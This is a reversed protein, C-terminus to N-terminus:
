QDVFAAQRSLLRDLSSRLDATRIWRIDIRRRGLAWELLSHFPKQERNWAHLSSREQDRCPSGIRQGGGKLPDAGIIRGDAANGGYVVMTGLRAWVRM